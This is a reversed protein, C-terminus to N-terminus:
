SNGRRLEVRRALEGKLRLRATDSLEEYLNILYLGITCRVKKDLIYDLVENYKGGEFAQVLESITKM